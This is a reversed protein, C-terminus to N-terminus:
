HPHIHKQICVDSSPNRAIRVVYMCFSLWNSLKSVTIYYLIFDLKLKMEVNNVSTVMDFNSNKIM